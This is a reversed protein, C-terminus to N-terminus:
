IDSQDIWLDLCDGNPAADVVDCLIINYNQSYLFPQTPIRVAVEFNILKEEILQIILEQRDALPLDRIREYAKLRTISNLVEKNHKNVEPISTNLNAKALQETNTIEAAILEYQHRYHSM